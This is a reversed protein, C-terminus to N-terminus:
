DTPSRALCAPPNGEPRYKVCDVIKKAEANDARRFYKHRRAQRLRAIHDYANSPVRVNLARRRKWSAGGKKVTDFGFGSHSWAFM